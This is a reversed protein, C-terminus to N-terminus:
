NSDSNIDFYAFPKTYTRYSSYDICEKSTKSSDELEKRWFVYREKWYTGQSSVKSVTYLYINYTENLLMGVLAKSM